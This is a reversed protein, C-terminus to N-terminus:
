FRASFKKKLEFYGKTHPVEAGGRRKEAHTLLIESKEAGHYFNIHNECTTLSHPKQRPAQSTLSRM